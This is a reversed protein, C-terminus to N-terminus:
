PELTRKLLAEFDELRDIIHVFNRNEALKKFELVQLASAVGARQMSTKPRKFEVLLAMGNRLFVHDPAGRRGPHKLKFASWGDALAVAM